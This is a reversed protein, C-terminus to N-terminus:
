ARWRRAAARYAAGGSGSWGILERGTWAVMELEGIPPRPLRRWSGDYAFAARGWALLEKGTWAARYRDAPLAPLRRWANRRPEYTALAGRSLLLLERGTWVSTRSPQSAIPARPLLRWTGALSSVAPALTKYASRGVAHDLVPTGDVSFRVARVTPFQTLTYGVAGAMIVLATLGLLTKVGTLGPAEHRRRSPRQMPATPSSSAAELGPWHRAREAFPCGGLCCRGATPVPTM